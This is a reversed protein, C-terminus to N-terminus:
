GYLKSKLEKIEKKLEVIERALSIVGIAGLTAYDLSKYGKENEIILEPFITEVSQSISGLHVIEPNEKWTYKVL